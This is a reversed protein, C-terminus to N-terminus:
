TTGDGFDWTVNGTKASTNTFQITSVVYFDLAYENGEVAYSFDVDKGGFNGYDPYKSVCGTTILMLLTLLGITKFFKM